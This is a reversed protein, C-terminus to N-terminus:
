QQIIGVSSHPLLGLGTVEETWLLAVGQILLVVWTLYALLHRFHGGAFFVEQWM